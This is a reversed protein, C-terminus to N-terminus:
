GADDQPISWHGAILFGMTWGIAGSEHPLMWPARPYVMRGFVLLPGLIIM